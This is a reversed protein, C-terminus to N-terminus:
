QQKRLGRLIKGETSLYGTDYDFRPTGSFTLYLWKFNEAFLYAPCRDGRVMPQQTMDTVITYGNPVRHYTNLNQFYRWAADRYYPDGTHRYLDYACNAYEPFLHNAPDLVTLDLYDITNPIIAYADLVATWSRFYDAALLTDDSPCFVSVALESQRRNRLEGTHMDVNRFWLSGNIREVQSRRIAADFIWFWALCDPDGFMAWAGWLYEYFSDVPPEPATSTTDTWEGTEINISTGLLDLGSRRDIVAQYSRKAARYYKPDGTLESLVGFELINTGIGALSGTDGSVKGTRLNVFSYPIGTPSLTFAPLLRDALDRVADLMRQSGTAFYGALLGGVLRIISEFVFFDADIDFDLNQELWATSLAVEDDLGMVYLTDLAEIISLGVPHEDAFFEAYGGSVPLVEDHGWALRKYGNWAHLFEARIAEAKEPEPPGVRATAAVHPAGLGSVPVAHVPPALVAAIPVGAALWAM